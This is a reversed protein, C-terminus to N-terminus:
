DVELTVVKGFQRDVYTNANIVAIWENVVWQRSGPHPMMAYFHGNGSATATMSSILAESRDRLTCAITSPVAGSSVWTLKITAGAIVEYPPNPRKSM